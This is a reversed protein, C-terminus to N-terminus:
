NGHLPYGQELPLKGNLKLVKVNSNISYVDVVGIAGPHTAVVKLVLENSGMVLMDGKHTEAFSKIEDETMKYVRQLVMKTDASGPDGLVVMVKRGDPWKAVSAKMLKEMEVTTLASSANAKDVIVALDRAGCLPPACVALLM